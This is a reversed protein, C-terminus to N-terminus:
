VEDTFVIDWPEVTRETPDYTATYTLAAVIEEKDV